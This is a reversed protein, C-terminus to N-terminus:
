NGESGAQATSIKETLAQFNRITPKTARYASWQDDGLIIRMATLEDEAELLDLPIDLAQPVTYTVGDHEFSVPGAEDPVAEAKVPVLDPVATLSKPASKKAPM